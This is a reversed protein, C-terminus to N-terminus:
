REAASLSHRYERSKITAVEKSPLTRVSSKRPSLEMLGEAFLDNRMQIWPGQRSGNDNQVIRLNMEELLRLIQDVLSTGQQDEQRRVTGFEIGNLYAESLQFSPDLLVRIKHKRKIRFLDQFHCHYLASIWCLACLAEVGVAPIVFERQAVIDKFVKKNDAIGVAIFLHLGQVMLTCDLRNFNVELECDVFTTLM